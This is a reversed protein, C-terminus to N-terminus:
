CLFPLVLFFEDFKVIAMKNDFCKMINAKNKLFV